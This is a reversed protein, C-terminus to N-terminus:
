SRRHWKTKVFWVTYFIIGIIILGSLINTVEIDVIGSLFYFGLYFAILGLGVWLAKM